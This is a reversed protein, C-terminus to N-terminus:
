YLWWFYISYSLLPSSRPMQPEEMEAKEDDGGLSTRTGGRHQETNKAVASTFMGRHELHPPVSCCNAGCQAQIICRLHLLPSSAFTVGVLPRHAAAGPGLGGSAEM